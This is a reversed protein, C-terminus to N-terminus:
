GCKIGAARLTAGFRAAEDRAQAYTWSQGGSSVLVKGGFREAQRALMAPVTREAPAFDRALADVLRAAPTRDPSTRTM